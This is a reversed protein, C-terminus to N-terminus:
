CPGPWSSRHAPPPAPPPALEEEGGRALDQSYLLTVPLGVAARLLFLVFTYITLVISLTAFQAPTGQSLVLVSLIFNSSSSLGQGIVSWASRAM